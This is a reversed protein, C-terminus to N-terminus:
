IANKLSSSLEDLSKQCAEDVRVNITVVPELIEIDKLTELIQRMTKAASPAWAGNEILGVTRKQFNKSKIHHLFDSMVPIVEADYSSAALVIHSYEFAKSVCYSMDERALDLALSDVGSAKLEDSFKVAVEATHKHLSAYCVLVGKTEPLYSAWTTYKDIYYGLNDNLIRGHLPCITKIDLASAKKLLALVSAGFKGVINIYYRRAEDLWDSEDTHSAGFTGFADASFLVKDKADYTVMVEPWHVMPATYFSLTHEGLCLTGGDTVVVKNESFDFDVFKNLMSFTKANGVIKVDPYKALFGALSGSHDPELHNLILYTPEKGNLAIELKELYEDMKVSDVTDLIAIEKDLIVYSNYSIGSPIVYQGEFLDTVSDDIGICIIDKTIEKSM